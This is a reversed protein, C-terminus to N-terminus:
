FDETRQASSSAFPPLRPNHKEVVERLVTGFDSEYSGPGVDKSTTSSSMKMRQNVGVGAFMSSGDRSYSKASRSSLVDPSGQAEHPDYSGVGPTTSRRVHGGLPTSSRFSSTMPSSDRGCAYMHSYDHEGPGGRTPKRPPASSPRPTTSNFSGRGKNAESNFSRKSKHCMAEAKGLNVGEHDINYKGPDGLSGNGM